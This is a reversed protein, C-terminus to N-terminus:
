EGEEEDDVEVEVLGKEHVVNGYKQILSIAEEWMMATVEEADWCYERRKWTRSSLINNPYTMTIFWDYSEELIGEARLTFGDLELTAIHSEVKKYM